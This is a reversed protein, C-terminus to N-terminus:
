LTDCQDNVFLEVLTETDCTGKWPVQIKNDLIKKRLLYHNYIEGNYIIHYRESRSVLPQNGHENLGLISLRKHGLKLSYNNLFHESIGTHDPGRHSLLDNIKKFKEISFNLENKHYCGFFGCM